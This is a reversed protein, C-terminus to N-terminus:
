KATVALRTWVVDENNRRDILAIVSGREDRQFLLRGEIGKRFYLDPAEPVLLEKPRGARQRFLQEGEASVTLLVGPALQYTGVYDRYHKADPRGPAPDEYYRLVQEAVIQYEGERRVWTDTEHYRAKMEQGYITETEDMDYSLIATDAVIRSQPNVVKISGSYGTPLASQAAVFAKKDMIHGTEDIILSDAAYYKEFPRRDGTAVADVIAQARRTLEEQTIPPGPHRSCGATGLATAALLGVIALKTM